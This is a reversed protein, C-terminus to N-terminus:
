WRILLVLDPVLRDLNAVGPDFAELRVVIPVIRRVAEVPQGVEGIVFQRLPAHSHIYFVDRPILLEFRCQGEDRVGTHMAPVAIVRPLATIHKRVLVRM